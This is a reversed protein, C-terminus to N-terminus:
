QIYGDEFSSGNMVSLWGEAPNGSERSMDFEFGPDKIDSGTLDNSQYAFFIADYGKIFKSYHHNSVSSEDVSHVDETVKYINSPFIEPLM